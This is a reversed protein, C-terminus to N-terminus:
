QVLTVRQVQQASGCVYRALYIGSGVARGRDDRGRWVAEHWGPARDVALERVRAGRADFVTLRVPAGAPLGDPVGYRLTTSPNCPNPFPPVLRALGADPVDVTARVELPDSWESPESVRGSSDVACVRLRYVAEEPSQLVYTTDDEVTAVLTDPRDNCRLWVEYAVPRALPTGDEAVLDPPSWGFTFHLTTTEDLARAPSTLLCGAMLWWLARRM